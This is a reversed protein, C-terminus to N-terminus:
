VLRRLVMNTNDYGYLWSVDSNEHINITSNDYGYLWAETGYVDYVNSGDIVTANVIAPTTLSLFVVYTILLLKHM